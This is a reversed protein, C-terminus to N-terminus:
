SMLGLTVKDLLNKFSVFSCFLHEQLGEGSFVRTLTSIVPLLTQMRSALAHDVLLRSELVTPGSSLLLTGLENWTKTTALIPVILRCSVCSM